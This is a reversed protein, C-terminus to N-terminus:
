GGVDARIAAHGAELEGPSLEGDRNADMKTFMAASGDSHESASLVGDGNLDFPVIRAAASLDGPRRPRGTVRLQAADMEEATVNGDDDADMEDFMRKAADAHEAGSIAGDGDADMGAFSAPPPGAPAQASVVPVALGAALAVLLLTPSKM